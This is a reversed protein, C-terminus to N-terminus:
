SPGDLVAAVVLQNGSGYASNNVSNAAASVSWGEGLPWGSAVASVMVIGGGRSMVIRHIVRVHRDDDVGVARGCDGCGLVPPWSRV